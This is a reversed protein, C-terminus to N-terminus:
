RVSRVAVHTGSRGVQERQGDMVLRGDGGGDLAHQRVEAKRQAALGAMSM